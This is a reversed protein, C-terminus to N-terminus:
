SSKWAIGELSMLVDNAAAPNPVQVFSIAPPEGQCVARRILDFTTFDEIDRLYVTLKVLDDLTLGIQALTARMEALAFWAQAAARQRDGGWRQVVEYGESPLSSPGDIPRTDRWATAASMFVLPGAVVAKPAGLETFGNTLVDQRSMGQGPALAVPEIEILTGRHGVETFEIVSLAPQRDPFFHRHVRLFTPLDKISQLYVTVYVIDSLQVRQAQLLKRIENYCFWTQAAIPGDRSDPHSRDTKLFRGEEPIDDFGRIVPNGPQGTNIPIHGSVFLLPGSSVGQHYFSPAPLVTPAKLVQRAPTCQSPIVAIPNACLWTGRGRQLCSAGLGSAPSGGSAEFAMRTSEFCRFFRKDKQYYRNFLIQDVGSGHDRLIRDINTYITWAQAALPGELADAAPIGSALKRGEEPVDQFGRVLGREPDVAAQGSLFLYDGARVLIPYGAVPRYVDDM